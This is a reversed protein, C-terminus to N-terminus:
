CQVLQLVVVVSSLPRVRSVLVHPATWFSSLPPTPDAMHATPRGISQCTQTSARCFWASASTHDRTMACAHMLRVMKTSCDRLLFNLQTILKVTCDTLRTCFGLTILM